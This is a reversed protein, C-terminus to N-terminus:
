NVQKTWLHEPSDEIMEATLRIAQKIDVSLQRTAVLKEADSSTASNLIIDLEKDVFDLAPNIM